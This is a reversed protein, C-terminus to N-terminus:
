IWRRLSLIDVFDYVLLGLLLPLTPILCLLLHTNAVVLGDLALLRLFLLSAIQLFELARVEKALIQIVALLSREEHLLRWVWILCFICVDYSFHWLLDFSNCVWAGM